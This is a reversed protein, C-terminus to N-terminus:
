DNMKIIMLKLFMVLTFFNNLLIKMEYAMDMIWSVNKNHNQDM